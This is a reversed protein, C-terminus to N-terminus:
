THKTEGNGSAPSPDEDPGPHEPGPAANVSRPARPKRLAPIPIPISDSSLSPAPIPIPDSSLIPAPSEAEASKTPNPVNMDRPKRPKKLPADAETRAEARAAEAIEALLEPDVEEETIQTEDQDESFEALEGEAADEAADEPPEELDAGEPIEQTHPISGFFRAVAEAAAVSMGPVAALEEVTAARIRKVSGLARLLVRQRKPGVGPIDSLISRITRKSRQKKHFTVAFRHAEDRIRALVYLEATNPRLKIPDKAKALFVRDPQKEGSQDEREKALGIVDLHVLDIGVDKLAALATQLQGKGGDIVLLDPLGWSVKEQAADAGAEAAPSSAEATAISGLDEGNDKASARRAIEAAVGGGPLARAEGGKELLERARRFRRSLVEYMSAFDDNRVSKIKFTRYESRAPEGDIFVVRSAVTFSGQLHSIDFCEIWRPPRKLALRKQLKALVDETDRKKDRRSKYAVEANRSALEVLKARPGRKPVMVEVRRRRLGGEAAKLARERLWEEKAERDEIEVPLLVEDPIVNGLDYYLGVFSSLSEEDPFEQGSFHYTRRGLLKGQRVHLVAIELVDGERYHGFVDQDVFHTSVVRQQELTRELARLQDRIAGAVEYDMNESAATMRGHLRTTLEQDKGDLFLAVDRVQEAYKEEPIPFVCPADCRKIQYQLCPRKRSGLVQDTCTRLKFHRNVVQLTQRCSGASHYPGFYRASDDRIRRMVELRPYRAKPDLRLVLYNKDDVLKVNFRPRHQKILNNELLLAEKETNTVVTEIDGLLRELLAVFPRNDGSRTFYSRVRNRLNQAKGVYIIKGKKDKMLYVGPDTPMRELLVSLTPPISCEEILSVSRLSPEKALRAEEAQKAPDLAPAEDLPGAPDAPDDRHDM